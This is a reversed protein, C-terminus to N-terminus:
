TRSKRKLYAKKLSEYNLLSIEKLIEKIEKYRDSMTHAEPVADPPLYLNRLKGKESVALYFCIHGRGENCHCNRGCKLRYRAVHGILFDLNENLQKVLGKRQRKMRQRARTSLM